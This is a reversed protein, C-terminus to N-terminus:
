IIRGTIMWNDGFTRTKIQSLGLRSSMSATHLTSSWTLGGKTGLIIPATFLTIRNVLGKELLTSALLGGGEVFISRMGRQWLSNFLSTLDLEPGRPGLAEPIKVVRPGTAQVWDPVDVHSSVCWFINERSHAQSVQLEHFRTLHAGQRDIIVVKKEFTGFAPDLRINLKPNDRALTGSGVLIADSQARLMHTYGRSAENTIWRSEGNELAIVGDMSAALKLTVFVKQHQFNWLFVECIEKLENQLEDNLECPLDAQIGANRLIQQGQGSVLPNPDILGFIVKAIGTKALMKACSPTRGEHACPELTVFLQAGKLEEATLGRLANVEAHPGGCFEHHGKSLFCGKSDLVVCGVPPNPSVRMLGLRAESIALKMAELNTLAQGRRVQDVSQSGLREVIKDDM